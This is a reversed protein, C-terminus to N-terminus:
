TSPKNKSLFIYVIGCLSGGFILLDSVWSNFEYNDHGMFAVHLIGHVVLFMSLWFKTKFRVNDNPSAILAVLIAFLPIHTLVFTLEAIDPPLWSVIPLVLWENNRMADLEHTFLFGVGLYFAGDRM